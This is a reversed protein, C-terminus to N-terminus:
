ERMLNRKYALYNGCANSQLVHKATFHAVSAQVNSPQAGVFFVRKLTNWEKGVFKQLAKGLAYGVDEGANGFVGCGIDTVAIAESNAMVAALFVAEWVMKLRKCYESRKQKRQLQECCSVSRDFTEAADTNVNAALNPMAATVVNVKVPARLFKYGTDSGTRFIEVGRSLLASTKPLYTNKKEKVKRFFRPGLARFLTSSTCLAEELAHRGGSLFGGCAHGSSGANLMALTRAKGAPTRGFGIVFELMGSNVPIIQIDASTKLPEKKWRENVSIRKTDVKSELHVIGENTQYGHGDTAWRTQLALVRRLRRSDNDNWSRIWRYLGQRKKAKKVFRMPMPTARIEIEDGNGSRRATMSVQDISHLDIGVGEPVCLPGVDENVVDSEQFGGPAYNRAIQRFSDSCSLLDGAPCTNRESMGISISFILCFACALNVM